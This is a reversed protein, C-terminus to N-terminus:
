AQTIRSSTGPSGIDRTIRSNRELSGAQVPRVPTTRSNSSNQEAVNELLKPPQKNKPDTASWHSYSRPLSPYYLDSFNTPQGHEDQQLLCRTRSSNKDAWMWEGERTWSEPGDPSRCGCSNRRCSSGAHGLVGLWHFFMKCDQPRQLTWLDYSRCSAMLYFWSPHTAGTAAVVAAQVGWCGWTSSSCRLIRLGRWHEYIMHVVHHWWIFDVPIHLQVQVMHEYTFMHHITCAAMLSLKELQHHVLLM